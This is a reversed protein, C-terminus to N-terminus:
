DDNPKNRDDLHEQKTKIFHLLFILNCAANAVHSTKSEPDADEGNMFQFIHRLSASLLRSYKIGRKWNYDGYKTAGFDLVRGIEYISSTPLLALTPKEWKNSDFKTGEAKKNAKRKPRASPQRKLSRKSKVPRKPKSM